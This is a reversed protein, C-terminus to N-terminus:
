IILSLEPDEIYKYNRNVRHNEATTETGPQLLITSTIPTKYSITTHKKHRLNNLAQRMSTHELLYVRGVYNVKSYIRTDM